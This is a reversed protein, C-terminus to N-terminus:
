KNQDRNARDQPVRHRRRDAADVKTNHTQHQHDDADDTEHEGQQPKAYPRTVAFARRDFAFDAIAVQRVSLTQTAKFDPSIPRGIM